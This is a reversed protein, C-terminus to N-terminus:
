LVSSALVAKQMKPCAGIFKIFFNIKQVMKHLHV